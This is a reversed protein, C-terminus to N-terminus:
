RGGGAGQLLALITANNLRRATALPTVGRAAISLDAGAGLLVALADAAGAEIAHHVPTFGTNNALNINAGRALLARVAAARNGAAAYNLPRRNGLVDISDVRAGNGLARTIAATDGSLSAIWLAQQADVRITSEVSALMSDLAAREFVRGGRIVTRIRQTNAIDALPNAELMVLDAARGVQVSGFEATRGLFTAGSLTASRLAEAPSLGGKVLEQLEDHVSAGPVVFSDGADTGLMVPVGARYAARTLELGKRYFDMYAKRGAPSPDSAIMGNADSHWGMQQRAPIYRLRPDARYAADDAFADMRRTVHTPTIYTGNRAFTRFVEACAAASYEDVMRQRLVTPAATHLRRRLSDAGPWCNLLFIRSHEISRQGANSMEIASMAAPEHGAFPIGLRRAEDTLGLYGERSVGGYVKIFDFGLTKLHRALERGEEDTRAKYYAPMADTVGAAGNVVWSGISLIRPGVLEGRAIRGEVERYRALAGTLMPTNMVRIGTVGFATFLPLQQRTPDLQMFLHAHMDWLGPIVFAGRGDLVRATSALSTRGAPVVDVIRDGKVLVDRNGITRGAVVDVVTVNRLALDADSSATAPASPACAAAAVCALLLLSPRPMAAASASSPAVVHRLYSAARGRSERDRAAVRRVM